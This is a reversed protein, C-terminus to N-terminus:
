AFIEPGSSSLISMWTSTGATFNRSMLARPAPSLESTTRPRTSGARSRCLLRNSPNPINALPCIPVRSTLANQATVSSESVSRSISVTLQIGFTMTFLFGMTATLLFGMKETVLIGM